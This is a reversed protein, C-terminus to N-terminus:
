GWNLLTGVQFVFTALIWAFSVTYAALFLPYKWQGLEKKVVAMTAMCPLYILVFLMFSLMNLQNYDPDSILKGKLSSKTPNEEDMKVDGIGYIIGMSSVIVEKAAFGAFLTVDLRWDFGCPKFVPEIIKGIRGGFSHNLDEKAMLAEISKLNAHYRTTLHSKKQNIQTKDQKLSDLASIESLHKEKLQQTLQDYNQQYEKVRPFYLLFWIIVSAALIFTGAKKVYAWSKEWVHTMIGRITPLRYPPLEM